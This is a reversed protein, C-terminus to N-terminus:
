QLLKHCDYEAHVRTQAPTSKIRIDAPNRLFSVDFQEISAIEISVCADTAMYLISKGHIVCTVYKVFSLVLFM